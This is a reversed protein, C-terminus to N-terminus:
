ISKALLKKDLYQKLLTDCQKRLNTLMRNWDEPLTCGLKELVSRFLLGDVEIEINDIDGDLKKEIACVESYKRYLYDFKTRGTDKYIARALSYPKSYAMEWMKRSHMAKQKKFAKEGAFDNQCVKASIDLFIHKYFIGKIKYIM